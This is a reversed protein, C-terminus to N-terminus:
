GSRQIWVVLEGKGLTRVDWTLVIVHFVYGIMLRYSQQHIHHESGPQVNHKRYSEEGLEYLVRAARVPFLYLANEM